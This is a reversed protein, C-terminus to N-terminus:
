DDRQVHQTKCQDHYQTLMYLEELRFCLLTSSDPRALYNARRKVHARTNSQKDPKRSNRARASTNPKKSQCESHGLPSQLSQRSTRTQKCCLMTQLTELSKAKAHKVSQPHQSDVVWEGLGDTLSWVCMTNKDAGNSRFSIWTLM